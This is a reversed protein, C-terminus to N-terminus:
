RFIERLSVRRGYEMASHEFARVAFMVALVACAALVILPPLAEQWTISGLANRLLITTPATLPFYTFATVVLSQPTTLIYGITYIPIFAWIIAVGLFRGADQANPFLSGLGVLLGTFLVMGVALTVIGLSIQAPDIPIQSLSVGGPLSIKDKFKFYAILLPVVIVLMQVVGLVWISYIKGLILSQGRISTLLIEAVRNEKEETTSAIMLYSLLVILMLFIIGILGPAILVAIGHTQVGNRYGVNNINPPAALLTVVEPNRVAREVKDGLSTKLVLQAVGDYPPTKVFGQDQEYITIGSRVLDKPFYFFADLKGSQVANIGAQQSPELSVKQNALINPNILGSADYAAMTANKPVTQKQANKAAQNDSIYSISYVAIIVAPMAVAAYWFSKKRLTRTVEFTIVDRLRPM